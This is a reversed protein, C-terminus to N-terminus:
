RNSRLSSLPAKSHVMKGTHRGEDPRGVQASEGGRGRVQPYGGGHDAQVHPREFVTEATAQEIAGGAALAEGLDPPEVILATALDQGVNLVSVLGCALQTGRRAAPEPHIGRNSEPDM